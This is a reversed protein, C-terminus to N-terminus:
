SMFPDMPPTDIREIKGLLCAYSITGLLLLFAALAFAAAFNHTWSALYGTIVPALIASIQSGFNMIGGVKGTSSIPVLLSPLTWGVPAAASLGGLGICLSLLAPVPHHTFAPGAVGLGCIMGLLLVRRRVHAANHGRRILADVLWGGVFIDIIGAFFWPVSAAWVAHALTLHLGAVAYSPLWTLLLYFSYNYTAFGISAGLIKRQRLLYGLPYSSPAGGETLSSQDDEIHAREAASLKLDDAPNRYITAFLAFYLLSLIGTFAFSVRWGFHILLLGVFPIGIAPSFKAAADFMATPLGREKEPFWRGVAAASLPFIPSEGIGLLLRSSFLSAISQSAATLFTAASWIFSSVVGVRRLGFRDLLVGSPLQLMAYTWGYAGLLYGFGVTTLGFTQHLAQQGVSINVRDLYGIMVGLALLSAIRWRRRGLGPNM